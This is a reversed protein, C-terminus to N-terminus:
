VRKINKLNYIIKLFCFCRWYLLWAMIKINLRKDKKAVLISKEYPFSTLISNIKNKIEKFKLNCEKHFFQYKMCRMIGIFAEKYYLDWIEDSVNIEKFIKNLNYYFMKDVENMNYIYGRSVSDAREEVKYLEISIYCMKKMKLYANINFIFDEGMKLNCIFSIKKEDLFAKKYVKSCPSRLCVNGWILNNKENIFTSKVLEMRQNENYVRYKLNRNFILDKKSNNVFDFLVIDFKEKKIYYLVTEAYNDKIEDDSDVFAIWEGKAKNMGNNRAISVGQNIQSFVYINNHKREFERCIKLSNDKSGDDIIIIEFNKVTQSLISNICRNIYDESNYMPIIFSILPKYDM